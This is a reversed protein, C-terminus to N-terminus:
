TGFLDAHSGTRDFRVVNGDVTYILVWDPEIHLDRGPKWEGKLPHDRYATPLADGVLILSIVRQLKEIDKGRKEAMKVDRRFQGTFIAARM